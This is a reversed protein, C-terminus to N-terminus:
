DAAARVAAGPVPRVIVLQAALASRPDVDDDGRGTPPMGRPQPMGPPQPAPSWVLARPRQQGIHVSRATRAPRPVSTYTGASPSPCDNQRGSWLPTRAAGAM